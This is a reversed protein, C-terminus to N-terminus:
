GIKTSWTKNYHFIKPNNQSITILYINDNNNNKLIKCKYYSLMSKIQKM